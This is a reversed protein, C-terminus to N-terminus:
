ENRDGIYGLHVVSPKFRNLQEIVRQTGATPVQQRAVDSLNILRKEDQWLDVLLRSLEIVSIDKAKGLNICAGLSALYATTALQNAAVTMVLAPLSCTCREWHSSGGAGISMRAESMLKAMYSCQIHVTLWDAEKFLEIIEDNWPNHEGLVLDVNMPEPIMAISQLVMLNFNAPDSGGLFVLLRQSDTVMSRRINYFEARLISYKPGLLPTCNFNIFSHYRNISNPLLNQDLLVDCHHHRDALDDIVMVHHCQQRMLVEFEAGLGYHDVILLDYNQNLKSLCAEADKLQTDCPKIAIVTFNQERIMRQLHGSHSACVFTIQAKEGLGKAEAIIANALTLCRMVHGSGISDSADTRIM